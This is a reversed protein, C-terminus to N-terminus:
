TTNRKNNQRSERCGNDVGTHGKDRCKRSRYNGVEGITVGKLISVNYSIWANNCITIPSTKVSGKDKPHGHLIMQRFSESRESSDLEHSDTDIINVNHAILVDSGITIRDAARIVTSEGIYSNDGITIGDGYPYTLLTGRIHCNTGITIKAPEQMNIISCGGYLRSQSGLNCQQAYCKCKYKIHFSLIRDIILYLLKLMEKPYRNEQCYSGSKRRCYVLGSCRKDSRQRSWRHCAEGITVGKLIVVNMGIWADDKIIIPKTRVNTWNKSKVM